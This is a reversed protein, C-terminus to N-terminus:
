KKGAQKPRALFARFAEASALDTEGPQEGRVNRLYCARVPVSNESARASARPCHIVAFLGPNPKMVLETVLVVQDVFRGCIPHNEVRIMGTAGFPAPVATGSVLMAKLQGQKKV